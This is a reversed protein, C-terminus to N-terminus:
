VCRRQELVHRCLMGMADQKQEVELVGMGPESGEQNQVMSSVEQAPKFFEEKRLHFLVDVSTVGFIIGNVSFTSPNPLLQVRQLDLRHILRFLILV